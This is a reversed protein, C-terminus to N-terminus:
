CPDASNTSTLATASFQRTSTGRPNLPPVHGRREAVRQEGHARAGHQQGLVISRDRWRRGGVPIRVVHLVDFLLRRRARLDVDGKHRAHAEAPPEEHLVSARAPQHAKGVEIGAIDLGVQLRARVRAVRQQPQQEHAVHEPEDNLDEGCPEPDHSPEVQGLQAAELECPVPSPHEPDHGLESDDARVDLLHHAARDGELEQKSPGEPDAADHGRAIGEGEQRDVEQAHAGELREDSHQDARHGDGEGDVAEERARVGDIHQTAESRDHSRVRYQLRNARHAAAGV